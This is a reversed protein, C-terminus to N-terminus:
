YFLVPMFFRQHYEPYLIVRRDYLFNLIFQYHAQDTLQNLDTMHESNVHRNLVLQYKYSRTCFGCRLQRSRATRDFTYDIKNSYEAVLMEVIDSDDM